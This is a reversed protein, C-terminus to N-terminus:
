EAVIRGRQKRRKFRRSAAVLVPLPDKLSLLAWARTNVYHTITEKVLNISLPYHLRDTLLLTLDELLNTYKVGVRM